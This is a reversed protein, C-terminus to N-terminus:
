QLEWEAIEDRFGEVQRLVSGEWEETLALVLLAVHTITGRNWERVLSVHDGHEECKLVMSCLWENRIHTWRVTMDREGFKAGLVIQNPIPPSAEYHDDTM